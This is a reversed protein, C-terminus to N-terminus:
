PLYPVSLGWVFLGGAAIIVGYGVFAEWFDERKRKRWYALRRKEAEEAQKWAEESNWTM